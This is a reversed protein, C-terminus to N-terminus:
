GLMLAVLSVGLGFLYIMAIPSSPAATALILAGLHAVAFFLAFVFFPRYGPASRGDTHLEGGAYLSSRRPTRTLLRLLGYLGLGYILLAAPPSGLWDLVMM